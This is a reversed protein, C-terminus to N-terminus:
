PQIFQQLANKNTYSSVQQLAQEYNLWIYESHEAPNLRIPLKSPLQLCFVHETNFLVNPAYRRRWPSRIPFQQSYQYDVISGPVVHLGTEETLERYATKLPSTEDWSMSGTVSQWFDSPKTRRLLLVDRQETYVLLLISEPRKYHINLEAIVDDGIFIAQM